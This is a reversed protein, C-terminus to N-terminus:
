RRTFRRALKRHFPLKSLDMKVELEEKLRRRVSAADRARRKEQQQETWARRWARSRFVSFDDLPDAPNATEYVQGFANEYRAWFISRSDVDRGDRALGFAAVDVEVELYQVPDTPVREGAALM